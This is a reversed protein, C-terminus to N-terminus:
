ESRPKFLVVDIYQWQKKTLYGFNMRYRSVVSRAFKADYDNLYGDQELTQLEELKGMQFATRQQEARLEAETEEPTKVKIDKFNFAM